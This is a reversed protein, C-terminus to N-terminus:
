GAGIAAQEFRLGGLVQDASYGCDQVTLDKAWVGVVGLGGWCILVFYGAGNLLGALSPSSLGWCFTIHPDTPASSTFRAAARNMRLNPLASDFPQAEAQGSTRGAELGYPCPMGHGADGHGGAKRQSDGWPAM